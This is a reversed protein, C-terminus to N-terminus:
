ANAQGGRKKLLGEIKELLKQPEIPKTEFIDVPVMEEDKEFTFGTVRGISSLMLIPVSCGQRRLDCAMTFGDDPVEMMVDLVILDPRSNAVAAMGKERTAATSVEHGASELVLRVADTFDRDDDVILIKAM